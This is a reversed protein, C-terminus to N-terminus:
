EAAQNWCEGLPTEGADRFYEKFGNTILRRTAVGVNVKRPSIGSRLRNFTELSLPDTGPAANTLQNKLAGLATNARQRRNENTSFQALAAFFSAMVNESSLWNHQDAPTLPEGDGSASVDAGQEVDAAPAARYVRFAETDLDAYLKLTEIFVDFQQSLASEGMDLASSEMLQNAVINHKQLEPSATVMAQYASVVINFAFKRPRTRRTADRERYIEINPIKKEISAQLSAFLLELQHRISMPKQGANLVIIRYILNHLESELWFEVLIRQGEKFYQGDDSLDRMIYTRQLGDLIDVSGPTNLVAALQGATSPDNRYCEVVPLIASVNEPKVALTISPLLAGESIDLKLREYAKHSERRRQLHFDEFEKGVIALYEPISMQTYVVSTGTRVDTATGLITVAM